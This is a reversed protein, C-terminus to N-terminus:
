AANQLLSEGPRVRTFAVPKMTLQGKQLSTFASQELPGTHPFDSRFHAGRSDTRAIAAATISSDPKLAQRAAGAVMGLWGHTREDLRHASRMGRQWLQATTRGMASAAMTRKKPIM